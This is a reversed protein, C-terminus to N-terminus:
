AQMQSLAFSDFPGLFNGGSVLRLCSPPSRQPRKAEQLGLRENNNSQFDPELM